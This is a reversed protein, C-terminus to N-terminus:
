PKASLAGKWDRFADLDFGDPYNLYGPTPRCHRHSAAAAQGV